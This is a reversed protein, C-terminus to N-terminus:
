LEPFDTRGAALAARAEEVDVGAPAGAGDAEILLGTEEFTERLAAYASALLLDDAAGPWARDVAELKGGPFVTAGPFARLTDPRRGVLVEVGGEGDRILVLSAAPRPLPPTPM